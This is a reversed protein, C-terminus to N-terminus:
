NRQRRRRAAWLTIVGALWMMLIGPEPVVNIQHLGNITNDYDFADAGFGPTSQQNNILRINALSWNNSNKFYVQVNTDIILLSNPGLFLNELYLGATLFDNSGPGLASFADTVRVTSFNSIELTGLAFNNAFGPVSSYAVALNTATLLPTAQGPGVDHGAVTFNQTLSLGGGFLMKGAVMNNAVNNTSVNVFNAAVSTNTFVYVDGAGMSIVGSATNTLGFGTFVNTTPDTAWRGANVVGASFTGISNLMTNTGSNYVRSQFTAQANVYSMSGSNTFVGTIIATTNSVLMTGTAGVTINGNRFATNGNILELRAFNSSVGTQFTYTQDLGSINAAINSASNLRFTNNGAYLINTLSNARADGQSGWVNANTIASFSITGDTIAIRGASVAANPSITPTNTTFQYIANRNSITNGVFNGATLTNAELLGGDVVRVSNNGGAAGATVSTAFVEGNNTILLSNLQAASSGAGVSVAGANTLLGSNVTLVNGTANGSGITVINGKMSWTGGDLVTAFTNTGDSGVTLAGTAMTGNTLTVGSTNGAIVFQANNTYTGGSIVFTNSWGGGSSITFTLASLDSYVAGALVHVTNSSDTTGLGIGSPSGGSSIFLKANNTLTVTNNVGRFLFRTFNTVTASDITLRNGSATGGGVFLQGGSVGAGTWTSTGSVTLTNNTEGNTAGVQVNGSTVTANVVKIANNTGSLIIGSTGGLLQGSNTVVLRNGVGAVTALNFNTLTGGDITIVTGTSLLSAYFSLGNNLLNLTGGTRVTVFDNTVATSISTGVSLGLMFAKGGDAVTLGSESGHISVASTNSYTGGSVLLHNSLGGSVSITLTLGATDSFLGGAAITIINSSSTVGEAFRNPSGSGAVSFLKANNTLTLRNFTGDMYFRTLNTLVGGNATLSNSRGVFFFWNQVPAPSSVTWISNGLLSVSNNASNGLGLWLGGRVNANTVTLNNFTTGNDGVTILSSSSFTVPAAGGGINLNNFHAGSAIGLNIAGGSFNAGDRVSLTNNGVSTTGITVTSVNTVAVGSITLSNFANGSGVTFSNGLVDWVGGASSTRAVAATTGAGTSGIAVATKTYLTGGNNIYVIGNTGRWDFSTTNSFVGGNNIALRGGNGITFTTNTLAANTVVLWAQGNNGNSIVLTSITPPLSVNLINTYSDGALAVNNTLYASDAVNNSGPYALPSQPIWLTGNTWFDSAGNATNTWTLNQAAFGKEVTVLVLLAAVLWRGARRSRNPHGSLPPLVLHKM